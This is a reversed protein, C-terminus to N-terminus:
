CKDLEIAILSEILEDISLVANGGSQSKIVYTINGIRHETLSINNEPTIHNSTSNNESTINSTINNESTINYDSL